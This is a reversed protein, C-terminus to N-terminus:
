IKKYQQFFINDIFKKMITYDVKNDNQICSLGVNLEKNKLKNRLLIYGNNSLM